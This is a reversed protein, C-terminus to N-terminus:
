KPNLSSWSVPELNKALPTALRCLALLVVAVLWKGLWGQEPQAMRRPAPQLEPDGPAEEAFSAEDQRRASSLESASLSGDEWPVPRSTSGERLSQHREEEGLPGPSSVPCGGGIQACAPAESPENGQSRRRVLRWPPEAGGPTDAQNREAKRSQKPSHVREGVPDRRQPNLLRRSEGVTGPNAGRPLHPSRRLVWARHPLEWRARGSM